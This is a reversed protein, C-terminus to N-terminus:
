STLTPSTPALDVFDGYEFQSRGAYGRRRAEKKAVELHPTSAEVLLSESIGEELLESPIMGAGRGVDLLTRDELDLTKLEDVVLNTPSEPSGNERYTRLEGRAKEEDLLDGSDQCHSCCSMAGTKQEKFFTTGM